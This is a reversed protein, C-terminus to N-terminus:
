KEWAKLCHWRQIASHSIATPNETQRVLVRRCQMMCSVRKVYAEWWPFPKTCQMLLRMDTDSKSYFARERAVNQQKFNRYMSEKFPGFTCVLIGDEADRNGKWTQGSWCQVLMKFNNNIKEEWFHSEYALQFVKLLQLLMFVFNKPHTEATLQM